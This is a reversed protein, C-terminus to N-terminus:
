DDNWESKKIEFAERSFCKNVRGNHLKDVLQKVLAGHIADEYDGIGDLFNHAIWADDACSFGYEIYHQLEQFIGTESLSHCLLVGCKKCRPFTDSEIDDDWGDVMWPEVALSKACNSCYLDKSQEGTEDNELWRAYATKARVAVPELLAKLTEKATMTVGTEIM